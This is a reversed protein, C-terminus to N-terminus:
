DELPIELQRLAEKLAVLAKRHTTAAKNAEALARFARLMSEKIESSCQNGIEHRTKLSKFLLYGVAGGLLLSSGWTLTLAAGPGLPAVGSLWLPLTYSNAAVYMLCGTGSVAIIGSAGVGVSLLERFGDFGLERAIRDCIEEAAHMEEEIAEFDDKRLYGKENLDQAETWVQDLLEVTNKLSSMM